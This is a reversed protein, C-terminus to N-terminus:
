DNTMDAFKAQLWEIKMLAPHLSAWRKGNEFEHVLRLYLLQEYKKDVDATIRHNEKVDKLLPIYEEKLLRDYEKVLTQIARNVEKEEIKEADVETALRILRFLDRMSGGSMAILKHLLNINSFLDLNMRKAILQVLLDRGEGAGLRDYKVMPIIFLSDSFNDGFNSNFALALPVTYIIHTKPANLQEAHHIFLTSYSSEGDEYVKYSMKELGDVIVVLGVYKEQKIKIQVALLLDNLKAIFVSLERELKTRIEERRSSASKIEATAKALLKILISKVGAGAEVGISGQEDKSYVENVVKESFWKQLDHLYKDDLNIKNEELKEITGKAIILLIDQYTIETLDLLREVDLFVVFYKKNELQAKLCHLETSKGSGRHGTFLQKHFSEVQQARVIRTTLKNVTEENRVSALDIYRKDSEGKFLPEDPNCANYADDLNNVPYLLKM